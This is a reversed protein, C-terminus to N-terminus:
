SEAGQLSEEIERVFLDAQAAMRAARNAKDFFARRARHSGQLKAASEFGVAARRLSEASREYHWVAIRGLEKRSKESVTCSMSLEATKAYRQQEEGSSFHRRADEALARALRKEQAKPKATAAFASFMEGFLELGIERVM